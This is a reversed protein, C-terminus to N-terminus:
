RHFTRSASIIIDMRMDHEEAPVDEVMQIDFGIGVKVSPPLGRQARDEDLRALFRDYFGKGRGLRTLSSPAFLLAPVIVLDIAGSTTADPLGAAMEETHEPCKWKNAPLARLAELSPAALMRMHGDEEVKPVFVTKQGGAFLDEVLPWTDLERGDVMPLYVSVGECTRYESVEAVRACVARSQQAVYAATVGRLLQRAAQRAASKTGPGTSAASHAM